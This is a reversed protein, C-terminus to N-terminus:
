NNETYIVQLIDNNYLDYHNEKNKVQVVGRQADKENNRM